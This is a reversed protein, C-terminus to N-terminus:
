AVRDVAYRDLIEHAWAVLDDPRQGKPQSTVWLELNEPRNDDRVGNIHHVNEGPLLGEALAQPWSWPTSSCRDATTRTPTVGNLTSWSTDRFTKTRTGLEPPKRMHKHACKRCHGKSNNVVAVGCDACTKGLSYNNANYVKRCEKCMRQGKAFGAHPVMHKGKSCWAETDTVVRRARTVNADGHRKLRSIHMDCMRRYGRGLKECDDISCVHCEAM